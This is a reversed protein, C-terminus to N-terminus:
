LNTEKLIFQQLNNTHVICPTRKYYCNLTLDDIGHRVPVLYELQWSVFVACGCCFTILNIMLRRLFTFLNHSLM